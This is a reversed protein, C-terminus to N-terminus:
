MAFVKELIFHVDIWVCTVCRYKYHFLYLTVSYGASFGTVDAVYCLRRLRYVIFYGVLTFLKCNCTYTGINGHHIYNM